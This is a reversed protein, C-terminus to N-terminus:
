GREDVEGDGDVDRATRVVRGDRYLEWYDITGDADTDREKYAIQGEEYYDFVDPFGDSSTDYESMARQGGRYHDVWDFRGDFDRDMEERELDGQDDFYSVMDLAGDRNVDVEKRVLLRPARTRERYHNYVDPRGDRDLDVEELVLEASVSRERVARLPVRQEREREQRARRPRRTEPEVGKLVALEQAAFGWRDVVPESGETLGVRVERLETGVRRRVLYHGPPLALRLRKGQTKAVEAVPTNDPRRLVTILGAEEEPLVIAASARRV